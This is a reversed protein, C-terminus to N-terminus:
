AMTRLLYSFKQHKLEALLRDLIYATETNIHEIKNILIQCSKNKFTIEKIFGNRVLSQTMERTAGSIQLQNIANM